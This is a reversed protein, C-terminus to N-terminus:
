PNIVYIDSSLMKVNEGYSVVELEIKVETVETVRRQALKDASWVVPVTMSEGAKVEQTFAPHMDKNNLASATIEFVIPNDTKNELYANMTFGNVSDTVGDSVIITFEDTDALIQKKSNNETTQANNNTATQSDSATEAASTVENQLTTEETSQVATTDSAITDPDATVESCATLVAFSLILILLFTATRKM